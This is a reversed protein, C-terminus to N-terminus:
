VSSKEGGKKLGEKGYNKAGGKRIKEVRKRLNHALGEEGGGWSRQTKKQKLPARGRLSKEKANRGRFQRRAKKL